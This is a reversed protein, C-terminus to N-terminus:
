WKKEVGEIRQVLNGTAAITKRMAVFAKMIQLSVKIATDSKLVATLMAIAQETFVTPPNRVGM